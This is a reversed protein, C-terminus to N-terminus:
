IHPKWIVDIRRKWTKRPERVIQWLEDGPKIVARAEEVTSFPGSVEVRREVRCVLEKVPAPAHSFIDAKVLGLATVRPCDYTTLIALLLYATM